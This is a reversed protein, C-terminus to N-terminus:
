QKSEDNGKLSVGFGGWISDLEGGIGLASAITNLRGGAIWDNHGTGEIKNKQGGSVVAGPALAKNNDGGAVSAVEGGAVNLDGGTVSAYQGTTENKFGGGISAKAGTVSTKNEAGGSISTSEGAAHNKFGGVISAGVGEAVNFVGGSVSSYEFDAFNATGGTVSSFAGVASNEFGGTISGGANYAVNGIGGSVTTDPGLARNRDGHALAYPGALENEQGQIIGGYSTYSNLRGGLVLNNSGTQTGPDEDYGVVLNGAGNAEEQKGGSQVQVNVGSFQITPKGGVGSPQYTAHKLIELENASPLEVATYGLACTSGGVTTPGKVAGNSKNQM